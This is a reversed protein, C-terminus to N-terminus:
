VFLDKEDEARVGGPVRHTKPPAPARLTEVIAKAAAVVGSVQRMPVNVAETLFNGFRDVRNLVTTTMGDVRAAQRRVNETVEDAAVQLRDVQEHASQTMYVLEEAAVRIQPEVAAILERAQAVLDKTVAVMEGTTGILQRSSDLVPTLKARYEEAQEKAVSVAKRMTLYMGFLVCAQLLVSLGTIAIFVILLTELNSNAM